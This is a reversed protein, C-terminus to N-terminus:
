LEQIYEVIAFARDYAIPSLFNINMNDMSVEPAVYNSAVLTVSDTAAVHLDILTFNSDFVINHAVANAGVVIPSMDIVKRFVSRYVQNDITGPIFQKGSLIEEDLYWGIERLNVVNSIRKLQEVLFVRSEEWKEPIADYVPLYSEFNEDQSFTM